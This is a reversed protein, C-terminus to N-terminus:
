KIRKKIQSEHLWIEEGDLISAIEEDSLFESYMETILLDDLKSIFMQHNLMNKVNGEINTWQIGHVMMTAFKKVEVTHYKLCAMAIMSGSSYAKYIEGVINGRCEKIANYLLIATDVDGGDTSFVIIINNDETATKLKEVVVRYDSPITINQDLNIYINNEVEYVLADKDIESM